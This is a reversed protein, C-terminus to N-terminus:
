GQRHGLRGIETDKFDYTAVRSIRNSPRTPPRASLGFTRSVYDAVERTTDTWVRTSVSVQATEKRISM